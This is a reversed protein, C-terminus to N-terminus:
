AADLVLLADLALAGQGAPYVALPNIEAETLAPTALMLDGLRVLVEVLAGTDLAPAGRWGELLAAGKLRRLEAAIAGAGADAPMLRVDDLAEAWIGGLGVMLVPGWDPDRRAGAIFEVGGPPAQAEVLRGEPAAGPPAPRRAAMASWAARLAAEDAIGLAVGGVDSKHAIGQAKLVVPYGIRGAARVAADADGAVAGDPVPVGIRRLIDKAAHETLAGAGELGAAIEGRARPALGAALRRGLRQVHGLARLAREASRFLPVGAEAMEGALAEALPATDGLFALAVPKDAGELVPRLSAWKGMQQAPAGGMAAVLLSGIGPDALLAAAAAGFLDPRAMAQATIDLPNDIAAFDPLVGALRAATAPALAPLDLGIDEAVDLGLGRLAGSNTMLAAGAAPPVPCRLLLAATDFLEDLGGVVVVGEAEAL